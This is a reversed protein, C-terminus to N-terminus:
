DVYEALRIGTFQWREDPHFFNRYTSRIHSRPTACSGGRLVMQNVMFKGNYEGFAGGAQRYGPYPRYASGTWEWVDGFFQDDGAKRSEPHLAEKDTFNASGPVTEHLQKCAAEWEFESPLRMGKWQAFADAEYYSVHTVPLSPDVKEIGDLTYHYWQGDKKFWYLPCGIRQEKVWGWGEELWYRFDQYGGDEIFELFEGNTVPRDMIRFRELFVRHNELENDYCFGEGDYGVRYIGEEFTLYRADTDPASGNGSAPKKKRYHPMFPNCSLIYKIDTVLLEQHQQEHQLGLELIQHLEPADGIGGDNLLERIAEDVYERFEIVKRFPPRTLDDRRDRSVREGVSEYYSNFLYAFQEHFRQYGTKHPGLLFEEFFWTSHGLHWKPPSVFTAPQSVTDEVELPACLQVSRDRIAQFRELTVKDEGIDTNTHLTTSSAM